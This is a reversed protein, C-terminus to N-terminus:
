FDMAQVDQSVEFMPEIFATFLFFDIGLKYGMFLIAVAAARATPVHGFIKAMFVTVFFFAGGEMAALQWLVIDDRGAFNVDIVIVAAMAFVNTFFAGLYTMANDRGGVYHMLFWLFFPNLLIQSVLLFAGGM